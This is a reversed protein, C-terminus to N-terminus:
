NALGGSPPLVVPVAPELDADTHIAEATITVCTGSVSILEMGFVQTVTAQSALEPTMNGTNLAHGKVARDVMYLLPEPAYCFAAAKGPNKAEFEQKAQRLVKLVNFHLHATEINQVAHNGDADEHESASM